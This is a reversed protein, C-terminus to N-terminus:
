RRLPNEIVHGSTAAMGTGHLSERRGLWPEREEGATERLELWGTEWPSVQARPNKM